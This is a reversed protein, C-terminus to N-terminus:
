GGRTKGKTSSGYQSTSNSFSIKSCSYSAAVIYDFSSYVPLFEIIIPRTSALALARASDLRCMSRSQM